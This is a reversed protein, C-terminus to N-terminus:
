PGRLHPRYWCRRSRDLPGFRRKKGTTPICEPAVGSVALGDVTTGAEGAASAEAVLLGVCTRTGTLESNASTTLRPLTPRAIKPHLGACGGAPVLSSASLFSRM